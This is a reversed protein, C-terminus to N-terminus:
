SCELDIEAVAHANAAVDGGASDDDGFAADFVSSIYFFELSGAEVGHEDAFGEHGFRIDAFRDILQQLFFDNLASRIHYRLVIITFALNFPLGNLKRLIEHHTRQCAESRRNEGKRHGAAQAITRCVAGKLNMLNLGDIVVCSLEFDIGALQRGAGNFAPNVVAARSRRNCLQRNVLFIGNSYQKDRVRSWRRAPGGFLWGIFPVILRPIPRRGTTVNAPHWHFM